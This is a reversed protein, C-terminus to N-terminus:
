HNGSSSEGSGFFERVKDGALENFRERGLERAREAADRGAENLKTGLPRLLDAERDSRPLLTAILAGLAAGAGLAILPASGVRDGIDSGLEGIRERADDIRSPEATAQDRASGASTSRQAPTTTTTAM